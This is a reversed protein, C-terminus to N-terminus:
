HLNTSEGYETTGIYNDVYDFTTEETTPQEMCIHHGSSTPRSLQSLTTAPVQCLAHSLEGSHPPTEERPFHMTASSVSRGLLSIITTTTNNRHKTPCHERWNTTLRCNDNCDCGPGLARLLLQARHRFVHRCNGSREQEGHGSAPARRTSLQWRRLRRRRGFLGDPPCCNEHDTSTAANGVRHQGRRM